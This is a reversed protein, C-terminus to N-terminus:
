NGPKMLQKLTKYDATFSFFRAPAIKNTIGFCACVAASMMFCSIIANYAAGQSGYNNVLVPALLLASIFGPAYCFLVLKQKGIASFYYSIAGSMSIMLVAPAYLLMLEKIGSFGSGLIFVFAESPILFVILIVILSFVVSAKSLALTIDVSRTTNGTNAVKALLLPSISNVVILLAEMLSSASSYLGVQDIGPLLYYSYRNVFIYMLFTVQFAFGKALIQKL